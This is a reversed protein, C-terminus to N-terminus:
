ELQENCFIRHVVQHFQKLSWPVFQTQSNCKELTKSIIELVLEVITVSASSASAERKLISFLPFLMYDFCKPIGLSSLEVILINFQRLLSEEEQVNQTTILSTLQVCIPHVKSFVFATAEKEGDM